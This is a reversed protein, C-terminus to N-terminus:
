IDTFKVVIADCVPNVISMLHAMYNDLIFSSLIIFFKISKTVHLITNKIMHSSLQYLKAVSM